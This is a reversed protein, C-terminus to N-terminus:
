LSHIYDVVEQPNNVQFLATGMVLMDAGADTCIKANQMNIGGDVNLIGKFGQTRLQRVKEVCSEMFSQGGFGPEVTMVLILDLKDLYPYLASAPTNPKISAGVGIGKSRIQELTSAFNATEAHITLIDSGAEVFADIYREPESLMLHVDLPTDFAKNVAKVVAPGYSINPVFHGDMMNMHLYDIGCDVIRQIDAGMNLIDAALISPSIKIM